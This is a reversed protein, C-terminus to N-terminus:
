CRQLEVKMKQLTAITSSSMKKSIREKLFFNVEFMKPFKVWQPVWYGSLWKWSFVGKVTNWNVVIGKSGKTESRVQVTDFTAMSETGTSHIPNPVQRLNPEWSTSESVSILVHSPLFFHSSLPHGKDMIGDWCLVQRPSQCPRLTKRLQLYSPWPKIDGWQDPMPQPSGQFAACSQALYHGEPDGFFFNFSLSDKAVREVVLFFVSLADTHHM